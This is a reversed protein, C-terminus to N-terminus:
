SQCLKGPHRTHQQQHQQQQHVHKQHHQAQQQQHRHQHKQHQQQKNRVNLQQLCDELRELSRFFFINKKLIILYFKIDM